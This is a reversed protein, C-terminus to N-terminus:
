AKKAESLTKATNAGAQMNAIQMQEAQFADRAERLDDVDSSSRLISNPVSTDNALLNVAEDLDIKDLVKPDFQAYNLVNGVFQLTSAVRAGKAMRSAPTNYSIRFWPKGAKMAEIVPEPIVRDTRKLEKAILVAEQDNPDVGLHGDRALMNASRTITPTFVESVQRSIVGQLAQHRLGNRINAEGLTMEKQNMFDLLIDVNFHDIIRAKLTEILVFAGNPDGVTFLPFVPSNEGKTSARFVNFAKPSTDIEQAGLDGDSMMGLPPDMSKELALTADEVVQNIELVDPMASMGWGRGYVEGLRKDLRGVNIPIEFYGKEQIIHASDKEIWLEKFPAEMINSAAKVGGSRPEVINLLQIKEDLNNDRVLDKVRQSLDELNFEQIVRRVEWNYVTYITDIRGNLGEDISMSEVSYARYFLASDKGRFVGIGATGFSIEDGFYESLAVDLGANDNEMENGVTDTAYDYYDNYAGQEEIDRTPLLKFSENGGSWLMGKLASSSKKAATVATTDFIEDNLFAGRPKVGTFDQKITHIFRGVLDWSNNWNQKDTTLSKYRKIYSQAQETM